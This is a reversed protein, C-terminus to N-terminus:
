YVRIVSKRKDLPWDGNQHVNYPSTKWDWYVVPIFWNPGYNAKVYKETECPIRLKLGLFITWCLDFQPFVYKFKKGSKLQTGGNWMIRDERYFFFVDLKLNHYLFSLELSDNSEGFWLHLKIKRRELGAIISESFDDAFVGIDVDKSHPIVNCHRFYGLLTGSSIWFPVRLSDFVTKVVSLLKHVKHTFHVARLKDVNRGQELFHELAKARTQNCEIFKSKKFEKIFEVPYKPSWINSTDYGKLNIARSKFKTLLSEELFVNSKDVGFRELKRNFNPDKQLSGFWWSNDERDHLFRIVFTASNRRALLAIPWKSYPNTSSDIVTEVLFKRSVLSPIIKRYVNSSNKILSSDVAFSVPKSSPYELHHDVLKYGDRLLGLLSPEFVFLVVGCEISVDNLAELDDHVHGFLPANGLLLVIILQFVLFGIGFCAIVKLDLRSKFRFAM